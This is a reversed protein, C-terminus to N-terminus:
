SDLLIALSGDLPDGSLPSLYATKEELSKICPLESRDYIELIFVSPSM